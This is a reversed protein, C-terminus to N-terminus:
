NVLQCNWREAAFVFTGLWVKPHLPFYISFNFLPTKGSLNENTLNSNFSAFAAKWTDEKM